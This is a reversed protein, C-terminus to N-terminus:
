RKKPKQKNQGPNKKKQNPNKKNKPKKGPKPKNNNPKPKPKQSPTVLPKPPAQITNSAKAYDYYPKKMDDDMTTWEQKAEEEYSNDDVNGSNIYIARKELIFFNLAEEEINKQNEIDESKEIDKLLEDITLFQEKLSNIYDILSKLKSRPVNIYGDDDEDGNLIESISDSEDEEDEAIQSINAKSAEDEEDDDDDNIQDDDAEIYGNEILFQKNEENEEAFFTNPDKGFDKQLNEVLDEWLDEEIGYLPKSM